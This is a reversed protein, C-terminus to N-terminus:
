THNGKLERSLINGCSQCKLEVVTIGFLLREITEKDCGKLARADRFESQVFRRHTEKYDHTHTIRFFSM